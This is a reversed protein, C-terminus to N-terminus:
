DDRVELAVQLRAQFSGPDTRIRRRVGEFEDDPFAAELWSRVTGGLTESDFDDLDQGEPMGLVVAAAMQFGVASMVETLTDPDNGVFRACFEKLDTNVYLRVCSLFSHDLLEPRWHLYWRSGEWERGAFLESFSGAQMPFRGLEGELDVHFQEEWLRSGAMNPSLPGYDAPEEALILETHLLLSGSLEAGDITFEVDFSGADSGTRYEGWFRITDNRKLRGAGTRSRVVLEIACGDPLGLPEGIPTMAIDVARRFRLDVNYDWGALESALWDWTEGDASVQWPGPSLADADLQLFPFAIAQSSM